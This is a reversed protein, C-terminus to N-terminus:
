RSRSRESYGDDAGEKQLLAKQAKAVEESLLGAYACLADSMISEPSSDAVYQSADHYFRYIHNPITLRIYVDM